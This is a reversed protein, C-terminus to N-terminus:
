GDLASAFDASPGDPPEGANTSNGAGNSAAPPDAAADRWGVPHTVGRGRGRLLEVAAGEGLDGTMMVDASRFPALPWRFDGFAERAITIRAPDYGLLLAGATDTAAANSSALLLGLPLPQPALPGNGQGAVVADTLHLVLRQPREAMTADARGYLLIRNLDLCTRWITDNGSWAGEIGLRDGQLRLVRYLSRAAAHWARASAQSGTMNQRDFVYELARKVGSGGPYCDGGEAAGGLRHHPLYEKNGNIGILNKLACTIGAKMHTKLKPLNVVVDSEVVERAVLYRHRGKAHTKALLRPDYRTVRFQARGGTIPELFSEDALDFLAYRDEPQLDEESVRVGDRFVCTTRRFDRVGKFRADLAKLGEAWEGLKTVRMLEDFDCGQLPADGVLVESPDAQLLANVVARVVSPHTVLPEVGWPGENRHAVFNPKVLVRAGRPVVRGFPGRGEEGWGLADCARAIADAMGDDVDGDAPYRVGPTRAAAVRPDFLREADFTM